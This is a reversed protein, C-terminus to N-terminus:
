HSEMKVLQEFNWIWFWKQVYIKQKIALRNEIKQPVNESLTLVLYQYSFIQRFTIQAGDLSNTDELM